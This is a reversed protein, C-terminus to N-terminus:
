INLPYNVFLGVPSCHTHKYFGWQDILFSDSKTQTPPPIILGRKPCNGFMSKIM